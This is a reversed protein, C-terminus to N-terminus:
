NKSTSPHFIHLMKQSLLAYTDAIDPPLAAIHKRITNLDGRKAPGTMAEAPSMELVREGTLRFLPRLMNFDLGADACIRESLSWLYMVMNCGMVAAAHLRRRDDSSVEAVLPSMQRAIEGAQPDGEVLLPVNNWDAECDKLMTQLPYLIGRRPFKAPDFVDIGVSGATHLWLASGASRVSELVSPLADDTVAVIVVDARDPDLESVPTHSRSCIQVIEAGVERLRAAFRTAVNGSGIFSVRLM